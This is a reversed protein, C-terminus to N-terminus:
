DFGHHQLTPLLRSPTHGEVGDENGSEGEDCRVHSNAADPV